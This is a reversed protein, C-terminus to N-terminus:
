TMLEKFEEVSIGLKEAAKEISLDGSRVLEILTDLRGKAEGRKEIKDIIECMTIDGEREQKIEDLAVSFRNDKRFVKFFDVIEQPHDLKAGSSLYDENKNRAAYYEVIHRFDSRFKLKDKSTLKHLDILNIRYDSVYPTLEKPIDLCDYLQTGYNWPKDGFYLVLTIVPHYLGECHKDGKENLQKRYAAADYNIGRMPMYKYPDSQNEIGLFAINISCRRWYKSVDREQPRVQGDAKYQSFTDAPTLEEPLVIQEGNFLFGNIIDAFVDAYSELTKSITDKEAM